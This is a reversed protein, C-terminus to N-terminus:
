ANDTAGKRGLYDASISKLIVRGSPLDFDQRETTPKVVCGERGKFKSVVEECVTTQGDTVDMLVDPTFPGVYLEPVTEVGYIGCTYVVDSWDLYEGNVSIDFVRFGVKGNYQMDQIGPGYIEGFVLVAVASQDDQMDEIMERLHAQELPKWYLSVNGKTDLRKRRVTHSGGMWTLGEDTMVVGVRCNTGHIKETIVVKEGVPIVDPYNQYREIDTYKHFMAHNPEQDGAYVKEPPTYKTIDLVEAWDSGEQLDKGNDEWTAPIGTKIGIYELIDDTTMLTGFSRVGRLRTARVRKKGQEAEESSKPMDGLYNTIGLMEHLAKPLIADPPIFVVLDGQTFVDKKVCTEWAGICAIELKDANPHEKIETIRQLKVIMKSM